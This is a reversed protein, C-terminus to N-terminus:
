RYPPAACHAGAVKGNAIVKISRTVTPWPRCSTWRADENGAVSKRCELGSDISVASSEVYRAACVVSDNPTSSGRTCGARLLTSDPQRTAICPAAGPACGCGRNMAHHPATHHRHPPKKIPTAVASPLETAFAARFKNLKSTPRRACGCPGLGIARAVVSLIDHECRM